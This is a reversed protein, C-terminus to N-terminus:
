RSTGAVASGREAARMRTWELPLMRSAQRACTAIAADYHALTPEAMASLTPQPVSRARDAARALEAAHEPAVIAAIRALMRGADRWEEDTWAWGAGTGELREALAGFPPVVVPCGAAWAESLTFSFTEPGASPYAVLRVRYHALLEPLDRPDYRGHVTLVADESQWPGHQVDMYGILVFRVRSGMSRVLEVLQELRRAGKDPGVAGLIAVTPIGDDPLLLMRGSSPLTTHADDDESGESAMAWNGPAGHPIVDITRDPYYKALTAATFRSPAVLFAARALLARHRARWAVIDIGALSPQAALCRTCFGADTQAGCYMGDTGLFLITPCAFNFDHVTYGYPLDLAALAELIGDRCGTINHLHIVDVGFSACLGGVFAPWAEGEERVLEFTRVSDGTAHVEVQWRAGVAIALHHRYRARSADILARAHHETGGGHGHIVHLVGRLSSLELASAPM